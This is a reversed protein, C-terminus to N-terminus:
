AIDFGLQHIHFSQFPRISWIVWKCRSNVVLRIWECKLMNKSGNAIIRCSSGSICSEYYAANLITVVGFRDRFKFIILPTFEAVQCLLPESMSGVNDFFGTKSGGSPPTGRICLFQIRYLFFHIWFHPELIPLLQPEPTRGGSVFITDFISVFFIYGTSVFITDLYLIFHTMVFRFSDNRFAIVYPDWTFYVTRASLIRDQLKFYVTKEHYTYPREASLIRDAFTYPGQFNFTYPRTILVIRDKSLIRDQSHIM